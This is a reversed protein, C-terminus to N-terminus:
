RKGFIREDYGQDFRFDERLLAVAVNEPARGFFVNRLEIELMVRTFVWEGGPLEEWHRSISKMDKVLLPFPNQNFTFEEHVIRYADTDVYVIGSPLIKFESKPRFGVKFIVHNAEITRDLLEFNFEQQEELFFPLEVFDSFGGAEMKVSADKEPSEDLVWADEQLKFRHVEEGVKVSRSFGTDDAFMKFVADRVEKKKKWHLLSRVTLTYSMDRHGALKTKEGQICRALIEELTLKKREVHVTDTAGSSPQATATAAPLTFATALLLLRAQKVFGTRAM